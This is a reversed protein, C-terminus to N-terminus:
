SACALKRAPLTRTLSPRSASIVMLLLNWAPSRTEEVPEISISTVTWDGGQLRAERRESKALPVSILDISNGGEGPRLHSDWKVRGLGLCSTCRTARAVPGPM